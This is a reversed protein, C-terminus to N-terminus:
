KEGPIKREPCCAGVPTRDLIAVRDFDPDLRRKRPPDRSDTFGAPSDSGGKVFEFAIQKAEPRTRFDLDLQRCRRCKEAEDIPEDDRIQEAVAVMLGVTHHRKAFEFM